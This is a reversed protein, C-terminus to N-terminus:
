TTRVGCSTPASARRARRAVGSLGRDAAALAADADEHTADAVERDDRGDGPGRRRADRRRTADRWEGGIFLQTKVGEVVRTEDATAAM